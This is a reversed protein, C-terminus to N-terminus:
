VRLITPLTLHTYSVAHSNFSFLSTSPCASMKAVIRARIDMDTDTDTDAGHFALKVISLRTNDLQLLSDSTEDVVLPERIRRGRPPPPDDAVAPVLTQEAPKRGAVVEVGDASASRDVEAADAVM